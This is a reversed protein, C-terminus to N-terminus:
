YDVSIPKGGSPQTERPSYFINNTNLGYGKAIRTLGDRVTGEQEASASYLGKAQGKFAKRQEPTLREGRVVQNYINQVKGPVGTANQANAFEGERVVSGPDLMKMYGFILSLDGVATDESALVRSYASKVDQYQKTSDLYEKRFKTELEPRAEIPVVGEALQQAEAELKKQQAGSTKAAAASAVQAARATAIQQQTLNLDALVKEPALAAEAAKITAEAKAKALEFPSKESAQLSETMKSWRDPDVASLALGLQGQVMDPSSRLADRLSALRATDQGSNAAAAIQEDLMAAADDVRGARILGFAQVGSRFQAEKAADNLTDWSQKFAERQQPYKAALAAFAEPNKSAFAAQVDTSYQQQAAKADALQQAKERNARLAMGVQLGQAISQTLDEQPFLAAYNIPAFSQIPM